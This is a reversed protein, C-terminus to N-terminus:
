TVSILFSLMLTGLLGVIAYELVLRPTRISGAHVSIGWIAYASGVLIAFITKLLSDTTTTYLSLLLAEIIILATYHYPHQTLEQHVM